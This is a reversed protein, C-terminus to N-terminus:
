SGKSCQSHMQAILETDIYVIADNGEGELELVPVDYEDYTYNNIEEIAYNGSLLGHSVCIGNFESFVMADTGQVAVAGIVERLKANLIQNIKHEGAASDAAASAGSASQAASSASTDSADASSGKADQADLASADDNASSSDDKASAAAQDSLIELKTVLAEAAAESIAIALASARKVPIQEKSLADLDQKIEDNVTTLAAEARNADMVRKIREARLAEEEEKERLTTIVAQVQESEKIKARIKDMDFKVPKPINGAVEDFSKFNQETGSSASNTFTIFRLKAMLLTFRRADLESCRNIACEYGFAMASLHRLRAPKQGGVLIAQLDGEVQFWANFDIPEERKIVEFCAALYEYVFRICNDSSQIKHIRVIESALLPVLGKLDAKPIISQVMELAMYGCYLTYSLDIHQVNGDVTRLEAPINILKICNYRERLFTLKSCLIATTTSPVLQLNLNARFLASAEKLGEMEIGDAFGLDYATEAHLAFDILEAFRQEDSQYIYSDIIFRNFCLGELQYECNDAYKRKIAKFDFVESLDVGASLSYYSLYDDCLMTRLVPKVFGDYLQGIHEDIFPSNKDDYHSDYCNNVLTPNPVCVADKIVAVDKEASSIESLKDVYKLLSLCISCSTLRSIIHEDIDKVSTIEIKNNGNNVHSYEFSAKRTMDKPIVLSKTKMLGRLAVAVNTIFKLAYKLVLPSSSLRANSISSSLLLLTLLAGGEQNPVLRNLINSASLAMDKILDPYRVAGVTCLNQIFETDQSGFRDTELSNIDFAEGLKIEENASNQFIFNLTSEDFKVLCDNFNPADSMKAFVSALLSAADTIFSAATKLAASHNGKFFEDAFRACGSIYVRSNDKDVVDSVLSTSEDLLQTELESAHLVCELMPKPLLRLANNFVKKAYKDKLEEYESYTADEAIDESSANPNEPPSANAVLNLCLDKAEDHKHEEVWMYLRHALERLVLVNHLQTHESVGHTKLLSLLDQAEVVQDAQPFLLLWLALLSYFEKPIDLLRNGYKRTIRSLYMNIAFPEKSLLAIYFLENNFHTHPIQLYKDFYITSHYYLYPLPNAESLLAFDRSTLSFFRQLESADSDGANNLACALRGYGFFNRLILEFSAIKNFREEQSIPNNLFREISYGYDEDLNIQAESPNNLVVDKQSSWVLYSHYLHTLRDFVFPVIRYKRAKSNHSPKSAQTKKSGKSLSDLNDSSTNGFSPLIINEVEATVTSKSKHKNAAAKKHEPKGGEYIDVKALEALSSLALEDSSKASEKLLSVNKKFSSLAADTYEGRKELQEESSLNAKLKAVLEDNVEISSSSGDFMSGGKFHGEASELAVNMAAFSSADENAVRASGNYARAVLESKRTDNAAHSRNPTYVVLRTQSFDPLMLRTKQDNKLQNDLKHVLKSLRDSSSISLEKISNLFPESYGMRQQLHKARDYLNPTVDQHKSSAAAANTQGQGNKELESIFSAIKSRLRTRRQAATLASLPRDYLPVRVSKERVVTGSDAYVDPCYLNYLRELRAKYPFDQPVDISHHSPAITKAIITLIQETAAQDLPKSVYKPNDFHYNFSGCDCAYSYLSRVHRDCDHPLMLKSIYENLVSRQNADLPRLQAAGLYEFIRIAVNYNHLKLQARAIADRERNTHASKKQAILEQVKCIDPDLQLSPKRMLYVVNNEGINRPVKPPIMTVESNDLLWLLKYLYECDFYRSYDGVMESPMELKLAKILDGLRVTYIGRNHATNVVTRLARSFEFPLPEKRNLLALINDISFEVKRGGDMSCNADMPDLILAM